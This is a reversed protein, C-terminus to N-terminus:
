EYDKCWKKRILLVFSGLLIPIVGIVSVSSLCGLKNTQKPETVVVKVDFLELTDSVGDPLERSLYNFKFTYVGAKEVSFWSVKWNGNISYTIGDDATFEITTPLKEIIEEKTISDGIEYYMVHNYETKISVIDKYDSNKSVCIKNKSNDTYFTGSLVDEETFRAVRIENEVTRGYDWIVYINHKNDECIDPYASPNRNDLLLSSWTDGDDKSLYATMCARTSTSENSVFIISGSSLRYMSAKSGPGIFPKGLNPKMTKWTEGHNNSITQELGGGSGQEIRSISWLTGDQKEILTPEHWKKNESQSYAHGRLQWSAGKDTSVLFDGEKYGKDENYPDVAAMWEGWSTVIPKNLITQSFQYNAESVVVDDIKGDPNSLKIAYTGRYGFFLWLINDSDLWLVPDRMRSSASKYDDIVLYPDVWTEGMDDSYALVIYNENDPETVGGRMWSAWLRNGSSEISAIGQWNFGENKYYDDDPSGNYITVAPVIDAKINRTNAISFLACTLAFILIITKKM